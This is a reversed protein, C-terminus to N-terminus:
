QASAYKDKKDKWSQAKVILATFLIRTSAKQYAHTHM